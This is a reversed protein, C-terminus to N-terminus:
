DFRAADMAIVRFEDNLWWTAGLSRYRIGRPDRSPPQFHYPDDTGPADELLTAQDVEGTRYDYRVALLRFDAEREFGWYYIHSDIVAPASFADILHPVIDRLPTRAHGDLLVYEGLFTLVGIDEDAVSRVPMFLVAGNELHQVGSFLDISDVYVGDRYLVGYEGGFTMSEYTATDRVAYGQDPAPTPLEGTGGFRSCAATSVILIAVAFSQRPM